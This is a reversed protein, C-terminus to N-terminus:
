SQDGGWMNALIARVKGELLLVTAAGWADIFLDMVKPHRGPVFSQHFEDSIAYLVVIGWVYGRLIKTRRITEIQQQQATHEYRQRLAHLVLWALVGYVVFHGAKKLLVNWVPSAPGPLKPQSSLFFIISMWILAPGWARLGNLLGQPRGNRTKNDTEPKM